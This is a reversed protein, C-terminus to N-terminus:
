PSNTQFRLSLTFFFFSYSFTGGRLGFCLHMEWATSCARAAQKPSVFVVLCPPIQRLPQAATVIQADVQLKKKAKKKSKRSRKVGEPFPQVQESGAPVFVIPSAGKPLPQVQESGAPVFVIPSAGKPLPQVQESGAPAFVIPSAGEPLPQVQESGAPVSVIPSAAATIPTEPKPKKFAHLSGPAAQIRASEDLSPQSIGTRSLNVDIGADGAEKRKNSDSSTDERINPLPVAANLVSSNDKTKNLTAYLKLKSKIISSITQSPDSDLASLIAARAALQEAEKKNRGTGGSYSVGNFDVSSVFVPLHGELQSTRYMPREVHIKVAYENLISKCFTTDECILPRGDDKIKQNIDDLAVRAADQEAGKRQPFTNPSKYYTGDVLVTCRFQPAHQTGENVTQYVPLQTPAKQTYEQLKNKFRQQDPVSKSPQVQSVTQPPPLFGAQQVISGQKSITSHQESM